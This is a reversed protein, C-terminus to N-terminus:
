DGHIVTYYFNILEKKNNVNMKRYINRTHVKVTSSSIFLESAIESLPMDTIMLDVIERERPTLTEKSDLNVKNYFDFLKEQKRLEDFFFNVFIITLAILSNCIIANISSTTYNSIVIGLMMGMSGSLWGGIIIKNSSEYLKSLYCMMGWNFIDFVAYAGSLMIFSGIFSSDYLYLSQGISFLVIGILYYTRGFKVYKLILIYILVLNILVLILSLSIGSFTKEYMGESIGGRVNLLFFILYHRYIVIKNDKLKISSSESINYKSSLYLFVIMVLM